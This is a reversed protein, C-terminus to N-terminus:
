TGKTKKWSFYVAAFYILILAIAVLDIVTESAGWGRIKEVFFIILFFSITIVANLIQILVSVSRYKSQQESM